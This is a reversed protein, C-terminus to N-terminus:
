FDRQKRVLCLVSAPFLPLLTLSQINGKDKTPWRTKCAHDALGAFLSGLTWHQFHSLPLALRFRYLGLCLSLCLADRSGGLLLLLRHVPWSGGCVCCLALNRWTFWLVRMCPRDYSRCGCLSGLRLTFRGCSTRGARKCLKRSWDCLESRQLGWSTRATRSSCHSEASHLAQRTVQLATSANVARSRARTIESERPGRAAASRWATWSLGTKSVSGRAPSVSGTALSVSGMASGGSGASGADDLAVVGDGPSCGAKM